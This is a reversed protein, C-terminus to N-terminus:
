QHCAKQSPASKLVREPDQHGSRPSYTIDKGPSSNAIGNEDMRKQVQESSEMAVTSRHAFESFIVQHLCETLLKSSRQRQQAAANLYDHAQQQKRGLSRIFM